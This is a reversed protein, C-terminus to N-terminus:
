NPKQKRILEKVEHPKDVGPMNIEIGAHGASGILIDGYNFMRGIVGQRVNISKIDKIEVEDTNKAIIGRRVIIRRNTITYKKSQRDIFIWIIIILGILYILTLIGVIFWVLYNMKSPQIEQITKEENSNTKDLYEGCHRCKKADDQIEESCYPCKKM